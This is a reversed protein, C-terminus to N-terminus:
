ISSVSVANIKKKIIKRPVDGAHNLTLASAVVNSSEIIEITNTDPKLVGINKRITKIKIVPESEPQLERTERSEDATQVESAVPESQDENKTKKSKSAIPTKKRIPAKIAPVEPKPAEVVPAEPKTKKAVLKTKQELAEVVPAEVVPAEALYGLSHIEMDTDLVPDLKMNKFEESEQITKLIDDEPIGYKSSFARVVCIHFDAVHKFLVHLSAAYANRGTTITAPIYPVPTGNKLIFAPEQM